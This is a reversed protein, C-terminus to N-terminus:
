KVYVKVAKAGVRKIYLGNQPNEVRVGQLNYYEAVGDCDEDAM